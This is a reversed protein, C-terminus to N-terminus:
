GGPSATASRPASQQRQPTHQSLHGTHALQAPQLPPTAPGRGPLPSACPVPPQESHTIDTGAAQAPPQPTGTTAHRACDADTYRITPTWALPSWNVNPEHGITPSRPYAPAPPGTTHAPWRPVGASPTETSFALGSGRATSNATTANAPPAANNNAAFKTQERTSLAGAGTPQQNTAAPPSAAFPHATHCPTMAEAGPHNPKSHAPNPQTDVTSLRSTM